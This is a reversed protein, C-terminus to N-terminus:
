LDLVLSKTKSGSCCIMMKTGCEREASSLIMDRHDPVGSIVRTECSGCIGELCSSPVDIGIGTVADLITEGPMVFVSKASRRCEVTFGGDAAPAVDSSFYEYHIHEPDLGAAQAATRYADLMGIPGCCYAHTGPPADRLIQALDLMQGGLEEDFNPLCEGAGAAALAAIEILLAARERTRVSYHLCWPRGRENLQRVMPIFPTVGIGGAIFLSFPADPVLPFNNRPASVQVVEGVRMLDHVFTSGGRSKADRAITLRYSNPSFDSLSYSRSIGNRLFLDLHAGPEVPPLPAGDLKQLEVSLVDVGEYRMAVVRVPFTPEAM